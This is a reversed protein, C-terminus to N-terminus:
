DCSYIIPCTLPDLGQSVKDSWCEQGRFEYTDWCSDDDVDTTNDGPFGLYDGDPFFGSDDTQSFSPTAIAFVGTLALLSLTKNIKTM